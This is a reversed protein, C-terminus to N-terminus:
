NHEIEIERYFLDFKPDLRKEEVIKEVEVKKYPM